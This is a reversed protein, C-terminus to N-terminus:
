WWRRVCEWMRAFGGTTYSRHRRFRDRICMQGQVMNQTFAGAVNAPVDSVLLAMDKKLKNRRIGVHLGAARFGAPATVGGPIIKM